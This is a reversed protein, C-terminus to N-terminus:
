EYDRIAICVGFRPKNGTGDEKAPTYNQFRITALKGIYYDKNELLERYYEHTGRCNAEFTRGDPLLLILRGMMGSRNGVGEEVDRIVFEDDIFEKRKVLNKTRKNEYFSDQVRLMQGEYGEPLYYEFYLEDLKEDEINMDFRTEVLKLYKFGKDKLLTELMDYREVFTKGGIDIDYIHYQIYKESKDFDEPTPKQQKVISTIENFDAKFDHNYLEGDIKFDLDGLEQFLQKLEEQIHPVALIPKGNRTFVGGSKPAICRIGDLKPQSALVKDKLHKECKEIGYALMPDIAKKTVGAEEISDAYGDDRKKTVKSLAERIAQEEPSTENAKGVNKGECITPESTTLKGDVFGEITYFTGGETVIEWQQIKGKSNKKYLIQRM